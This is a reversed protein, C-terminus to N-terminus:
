ITGETRRAAWLRLLIGCRSELVSELPSGMISASTEVRQTIQLAEVPQLGLPLVM